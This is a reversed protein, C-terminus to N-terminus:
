PNLDFYDMAAQVAPEGGGASLGAFAGITGGVVTMVPVTVFDFVFLGLPFGLVFGIAAGIAAGTLVQPMSKEVQDFFREETSVERVPDDTTSIPTLSLRTGAEDIAPVLDIRHGAIKVATPLAAVVQGNPDTLSIVKNDRVLDWRGESITTVVAHRNQTAAVHYGIHQFFGQLDLPADATSDPAPAAPEAHVVSTGITTAALALLATATIRSIRM